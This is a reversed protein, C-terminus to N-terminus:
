HIIRESNLHRYRSPTVLRASAIRVSHLPGDLNREWFQLFKSLRPFDPAKDYEQWLYSQLLDPWDPLRYIIEATTLRYGNLQRHLNAM